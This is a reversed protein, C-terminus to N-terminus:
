RGEINYWVKGYFDFFPLNLFFKQFIRSVKQGKMSYYSLTLFSGLCYRFLPFVVHFGVFLFLCDEGSGFIRIQLIRETQHDLASHGGLYRFGPDPKIGADGFIFDNIEPFQPVIFVMMEPKFPNLGIHEPGDLVAQVTIIPEGPMRDPLFAGLGCFYRFVFIIQLIVATRDALRPSLFWVMLVGRM